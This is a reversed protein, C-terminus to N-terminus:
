NRRIKELKEATIYYRYNEGKFLIIINFDTISDDGVKMTLTYDGRDDITYYTHKENDLQINDFHFINRIHVSAIKEEQYIDVYIQIDEPGTLPVGDLGKTTLQAKGGYEVIGDLIGIPPENPKSDINNDGGVTENDNSNGHNNPETSENEGSNGNNDSSTNDLNNDTSGSNSNDETNKTVNNTNQVPNAPNNKACSVAFLIIMIILFIKSKM